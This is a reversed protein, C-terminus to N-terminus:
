RGGPRSRGPVAGATVAANAFSVPLEDLSPIV